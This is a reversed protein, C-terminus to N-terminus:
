SKKVIIEKKTLTSNPIHIIDGKSTKIQTELLNIRVVKGSLNDVKISDGLKVLSKRYIFFGSIVNPIFDKVALLISVIILILAAAVIMNLITTTLGLENLAWIIAFFYIFYKAFSSIGKELQFTIGAKKTIKNLEIEALFKSLVKEVIRGIIFGILLIVLAVIAKTFLKAFLLDGYSTITDFIDELAM